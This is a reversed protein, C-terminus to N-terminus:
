RGHGHSHGRNGDQGQNESSDSASAGSFSGEGDHAHEDAADDQAHGEGEEHDDCGLSGIDVGNDAALARLEHLSMDACAEPSIDTGAAALAEYLRYKGMGLGVAQAAHHTESTEHTCHAGGSEQGATGLCTTSVDEILASQADDDCVISVEVVADAPLMASFQERLSAVAEEYTKGQVDAGELVKEGDANYAQASIVRNFRNLGLEVSPNVDLGVYATPTSVVFGGFGIACLVLCAALALGVRLMRRPRSRRSPTRQAEIAALTREKLPAQAHLSDFAERLADELDQDSMVKSKETVEQTDARRNSESM